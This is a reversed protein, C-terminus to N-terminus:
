GQYVWILNNPKGEELRRKAEELSLRPARLYFVWSRNPVDYTVKARLGHERALPLLRERLFNPIQPDAMLAKLDMTSIDLCEDFEPYRVRRLSWEPALRELLLFPLPYNEVSGSIHPYLSYVGRHVKLLFAGLVFHDPAEIELPEVPLGKQIRVMQLAMEFGKWMRAIPQAKTSFEYDLVQFNAESPTVLLRWEATFQSIEELVQDLRIRKM